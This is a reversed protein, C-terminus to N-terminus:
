KFMRLLFLLAMKCLKVYMRWVKNEVEKMVPFGLQGMNIDFSKAVSQLHSLAARIARLFWVMLATGFAKCISLYRPSFVVAFAKLERVKM